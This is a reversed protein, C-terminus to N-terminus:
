VQSLVPVVRIVSKTFPVTVRPRTGGCVVKGSSSVRYNFLM